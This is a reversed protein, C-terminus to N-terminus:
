HAFGEANQRRDAKGTRETCAMQGWKGTMRAARQDHFATEQKQAM